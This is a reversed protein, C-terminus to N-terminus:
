FFFITAEMEAERVGEPISVRQSQAENLDDAAMSPPGESMRRLSGCPPSSLGALLWRHSSPPSDESSQWCTFLNSLPDKVGLHLRGTLSCSHFVAQSCGGWLSFPLWTLQMHKRVCSLWSIIFVQKLSTFKPCNTICCYTVLVGDLANQESQLISGVMNTWRYSQEEPYFLIHIDHYALYYFGWFTWM